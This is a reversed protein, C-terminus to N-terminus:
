TVAARARTIYCSCTRRRCTCSHHLLQVHAAQVHALAPDRLLRAGLAGLHHLPYYRGLVVPAVKRRPRRSPPSSPIQWTCRTGHCWKQLHYSSASNFPLSQRRLCCQVSPASPSSPARGTHHVSWRPVSLRTTIPSHGVDCDCPTHTVFEIATDTRGAM